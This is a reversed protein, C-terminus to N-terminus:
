AQYGPPYGIFVCKQMHSELKRRKDQQVFVYARCGFVRFRSLDPKKGFWAQFPTSGPLAATPLCNWVKVQTALCRGWFSAPLRAQSLMATVDELMTRNAREADGNQQPRNRTTHLRLIGSDDCFRNFESSMYEGGKDDHLAKISAGLQNEALSKFQQFAGFADSKRRLMIVVRYRTHDDIFVVWYRFGEPTSTSIPGCLDSHVLDLPRNARHGTTPFPASHMKGSLCPECIPDRKAASSIIMGTALGGSILKTIDATNHHCLREHWLQLDLPRTSIAYASQTAPLTTGEVFATNSPNIRARFLTIKNRMFHMFSSDILIQLSCCRTLYLCSLLNSRLQPVHLVRTLEVSRVGQGEIVPDIVVTGMGASYIISGNALEVLVRYPRYNRIWHRHPTMTATCGTDANWSFDAHPQIPSSPDRFDPTASANGAFEAAPLTAATDQAKRAQQPRRWQPGKAANSCAKEQANSFARCTSQSHGSRGCFECVTSTSAASMAAASLIDTARRRRQIEETLFAQQVTDKDLKDMLLLSSVFHSYEDPLARILVMSTLEKDLAAIDFNKPRLSQCNKMSEDVRNILSQLSEDDVKRISFLDDYANFRSGARKQHYTAELTTWM